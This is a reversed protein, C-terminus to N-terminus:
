GLGFTATSLQAPIQQDIPPLEIKTQPHLAM